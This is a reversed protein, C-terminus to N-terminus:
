KLLTNSMTNIVAPPLHYFSDNFRLRTHKYPLSINVEDKGPAVLHLPFSDETDVALWRPLM